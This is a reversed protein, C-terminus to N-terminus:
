PSLRVIEWQDDKHRNDQRASDKKIYLIRDHLRHARGQWFEFRDPKIRYGGWFTPLPIEQGSFKQEIQWQQQELARRSAITESQRSAWASIQSDRPRSKFYEISLQDSVRTVTGEINIQRHLEYWPFLASVQNNEALQRGKRSDHNTYFVLGDHDCSKMLVTRLSPKSEESVTALCFGHAEALGSDVAQDLWLRFQEVPDKCVGDQSIGADSYQQKLQKLNKM